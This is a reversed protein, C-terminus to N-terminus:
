HRGRTRQYREVETVGPELYLHLAQRHNSTNLDVVSSFANCEIHFHIGAQRCLFPDPDVFQPVTVPEAHTLDRQPDATVLGGDASFQPTAQPERGVLVPGITGVPRFPQLRARPRRPREIRRHGRLALGFLARTFRALGPAHRVVRQGCPDHVRQAPSPRGFEDFPPQLGFVRGVRAHADAVFAEVLPDVRFRLPLQAEPLVQGSALPVAGPGLAAPRLPRADRHAHRDAFTRFTDVRPMLEAMEFGVGHDARGGRFPAAVRLDLAPAAPQEGAEDGVLARRGRRAGFVVDVLVDGRGRADVPCPVVARFGGAVHEHVLRQAHQGIERVRVGRVLAARVLVAVPADAAVQGLPGTEVAQRVRVQLGDDILDVVGGRLDQAPFRGVLNPVAFEALYHRLCAM